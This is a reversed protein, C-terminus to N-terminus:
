LARIMQPHFKGKYPYIWHTMYGKGHNSQIPGKAEALLKQHTDRIGTECDIRDYYALRRVLDNALTSDLLASVSGTVPDPMLGEQKLLTSLELGALGYEYAYLTDEFLHLVARSKERVIEGAAIWTAQAMVPNVAAQGSDRWQM